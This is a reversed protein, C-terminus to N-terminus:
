ERFRALDASERGGKLAPAIASQRNAEVVRGYRSLIDRNIQALAVARSRWNFESRVREEGAKGMKERLVRDSFLRELAHAIEEPNNPDVLYGTESDIIAEIAGGSRGGIVPRGAANAELFVMGFGEVDGNEEQRNPMLMVDGLAYVSPLEEPSVYGAFIVREGIGLNTALERLPAEEPGKGVILYSAQPFERAIRAFAQLSARHGKRPVLRAVTLVVLRNELNYKERLLRTGSNAGFKKADVGPTLKHIREDPIGLALLNQRTFESAAIVADANKYIRNRVRPQYRFRDIQPIEEGHCYCVYPIGLVRKLGMAIVGPPFLDGSHIIAPRSKLVHWGTHLLSGAGKPLERLKWSPLPRFLRRIRFSDTEAEADFKQWGPIKKSLITVDTDGLDALNRYINNYYERSGGAHPLFSDTLVLLKTRVTTMHDLKSSRDFGEKRVALQSEVPEAHVQPM